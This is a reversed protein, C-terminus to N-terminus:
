LMFGFLLGDAVDEFFNALSETLVNPDLAVAENHQRLMDIPSIEDCDSGSELDRWNDVHQRSITSYGSGNAKKSSIITEQKNSHDHLYFSHM